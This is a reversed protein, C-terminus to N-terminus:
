LITYKKDEITIRKNDKAKRIGIREEFVRILNSHIVYSYNNHWEISHNTTNAIFRDKVIHFDNEGKQFTLKKIERLKYKLTKKLEEENKSGYFWNVDLCNM